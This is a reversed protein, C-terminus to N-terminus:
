GFFEYNEMRNSRFVPFIGMIMMVIGITCLRTGHRNFDIRSYDFMSM